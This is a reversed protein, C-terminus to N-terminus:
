ERGWFFESGRRGMPITLRLLTNLDVSKSASTASRGSKKLMAPSAKKSDSQLLQAAMALVNSFLPLNYLLLLIIIIIVINQSM